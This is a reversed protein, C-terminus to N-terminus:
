TNGIFTTICILAFFIFDDERFLSLYFLRSFKFCIVLGFGGDVSVRKLQLPSGPKQINRFLYTMSKKVDSPNQQHSPCSWSMDKQLVNIFMEKNSSFLYHFFETHNRAVTNKPAGVKSEWCWEHLPIKTQLPM